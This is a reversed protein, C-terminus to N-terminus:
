ATPAAIKFRTRMNMERRAKDFSPRYGIRLHGLGIAPRLRVHAVGRRSQEIPRHLGLGASRAADPPRAVCGGRLARANGPGDGVLQARHEAVEMGATSIALSGKLWPSVTASPRIPTAQPAWFTGANTM